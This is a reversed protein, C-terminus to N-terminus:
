RRPTPNTPPPPRQQIKLLADLMAVTYPDKLPQVADLMRLAHLCVQAEHTLNIEHRGTKDNSAHVSIWGAKLLMEAMADLPDPEDM